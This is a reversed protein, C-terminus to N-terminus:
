FIPLQVGTIRAVDAVNFVYKSIIRTDNGHLMEWIQNQNDIKVALPKM